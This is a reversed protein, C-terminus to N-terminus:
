MGIMFRFLMEAPRGIVPGILDIKLVSPLFFLALLLAPGYQAMPAISRAMPRPLIGMLVSFGDLPPVPILNFVALGVNISITVVALNVLGSLIATSGTAQILWMAAPSAYLELRLATGLLAAVLINSVPGAVAVLAMGTVPNIRFQRPDVMVPKGWGFRSILLLITGLPDLHRIPNLSLRGAQRPSSDGLLTAALAHSAEHVTIAILFAPIYLMLQDISPFM